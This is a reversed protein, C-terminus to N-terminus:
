DPKVTRHWAYRAGTWYLFGPRAALTQRIVDGRLVPLSKKQHTELVISRGAQTELKDGVANKLLYTQTAKPNRWDEQQFGHVVALLVDNSRIITPRPEPAAHAKSRAEALEGVSIPDELIWNAYESNLESLKRNGSVVVIAIDQSKDGNFDGLVFYNERTTDVTVTDKYIRAIVGKLEEIAPRVQNPEPSSHPGPRQSQAEPLATVLAPPQYKQCGSALAILNCLLILVM